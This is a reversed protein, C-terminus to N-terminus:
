RGAWHECTSHICTQIPPRYINPADPRFSHSGASGVHENPMFTDLQPHMLLPLTYYHLSTTYYFPTTYPQVTCHHLVAHNYPISYHLKHRITNHYLATNSHHPNMHYHQPISFYITPYHLTHDLHTYYLSTCIYDHLFDTILGTFLRSRGNGVACYNDRHEKCM